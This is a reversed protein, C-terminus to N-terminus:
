EAAYRTKYGKGECIYCKGSGSCADCTKHEGNKYTAKSKGSGKCINCQGNGGCTKCKEHKEVVQKGSEASSNEESNASSTQVRGASNRNSGYKGSYTVRRVTSATSRSSKQSIGAAITNLGNAIIGSIQAAMEAQRAAEEEAQRRQAEKLEAIRQDLSALANNYRNQFNEYVPLNDTLWKGYREATDSYQKGEPYSQSSQLLMAGDTMHPIDNTPWVSREFRQDYYQQYAGTGLEEFAVTAYIYEDMRAEVQKAYSLGTYFCARALDTQPKGSSVINSYFKICDGYREQYFLREGEDAYNVATHQAPDYMQLNQMANPKVFWKGIEADYYAEGFIAPITISPQNMLFSGKRLVDAEDYQYYFAAQAGEHWDDIQLGNQMLDPTLAHGSSTYLSVSAENKENSVLLSPWGYIDTFCIDSPKVDGFLYGHYYTATGVFAAQEVGSLSFVRSIHDKEVLFSGDTQPHWLHFPAPQEMWSDSVVFEEVGQSVVPCYHCSPYVPPIVVQGQQNAVGYLRDNTELSYYWYDDPAAVITVSRLGLEKKLQALERKHEKKLDKLCLGSPQDVIVGAPAVRGKGSQPRAQFGNDYAAKSKPTRQRSWSPQPLALGLTLLIAIMTNKM